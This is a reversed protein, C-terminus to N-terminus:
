TREENKEKVFRIAATGKEAVLRLQGIDKLVRVEDGEYLSLGKSFSNHKLEGKKLGPGELMLTHITSRYDSPIVLHVEKCRKAKGEADLPVDYTYEFVEWPNIDFERMTNM